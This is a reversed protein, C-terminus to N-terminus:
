KRNKSSAISRFDEFLNEFDIKDELFYYDKTNRNDRSTHEEKMIILVQIKSVTFYLSDQYYLTLLIDFETNGMLCGVVLGENM